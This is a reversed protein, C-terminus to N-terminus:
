CDWKFFIRIQTVGITAELPPGVKELVNCDGRITQNPLATDSNRVVIMQSWWTYKLQSRKITLSVTPLVQFIILSNIVDQLRPNTPGLWEIRSYYANNLQPITKPWLDDSLFPRNTILMWGLNEFTTFKRTVHRLHRPSLSVKNLLFIIAVCAHLSFPPFSCVSCFSFTIYFTFRNHRRRTLSWTIIWPFIDM